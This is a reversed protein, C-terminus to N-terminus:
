DALEVQIKLILDDEIMKLDYISCTWHICLCKIAVNEIHQLVRNYVVM